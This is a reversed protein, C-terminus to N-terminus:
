CCWDVPNSDSFVVVSSLFSLCLSRFVPFRGGLGVVHEWNPNDLDLLRTGECKGLENGVTDVPALTM